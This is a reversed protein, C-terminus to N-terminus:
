DTGGDPGPGRVLDKPPAVRAAEGGAEREEDAARADLVMRQGTFAIINVLVAPSVEATIAGLSAAALVLSIGAEELGSPFHKTMATALRDALDVQALTAADNRRRYKAATRLADEVDYLDTV